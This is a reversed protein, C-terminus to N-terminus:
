KPRLSKPDDTCVDKWHAQRQGLWLETICALSANVAGLKRDNTITTQVDVEAYFTKGGDTRVSITLRGPLEGDASSKRAGVFTSINSGGARELVLPHTLVLRKASEDMREKAADVDTSDLKGPGCQRARRTSIQADMQQDAIRAKELRTPDSSIHALLRELTGDVDALKKDIDPTNGAKRDRFPDPTARDWAIVREVVRRAFQPDAEIAPLIQAGMNGGIVAVLQPRDGKEFILQRSSRLRAALYLFSAEEKDGVTRRGGAAFFLMLPERLTQPDRLVEDAASRVLAADCSRLRAQVESDRSSGAFCAANGLM